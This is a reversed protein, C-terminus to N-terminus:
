QKIKLPCKLRISKNYGSQADSHIEKKTRKKRRM